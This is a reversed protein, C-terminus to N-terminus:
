FNVFPWLKSRSSTCWWYGFYHNSLNGNKNDDLAEELAAVIKAGSVEGIGGGQFKGEISIVVVNKGNLTGKVLIVGDDSEPVIKQPELHPSIMDYEPGVLERGSNEDVLAFARQRGFLELYTHIDGVTMTGDAIMQSVRTSQPGAFSFDMKSAIGLDFIDLHEPRSISSMIMHLDHVREPDVKTLAESLFSAQKQNDGELVVKDGPKILTNLVEVVDETKAFKGNLLSSASALRANKADRHTHWNKEETM